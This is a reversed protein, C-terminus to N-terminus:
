PVGNGDMNIAVNPGLVLILQCDLFQTLIFTAKM